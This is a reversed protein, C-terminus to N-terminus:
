SDVVNLYMVHVVYMTGHGAHYICTGVMTLVGTVLCRRQICTNLWQHYLSPAIIMYAAAAMNQPM